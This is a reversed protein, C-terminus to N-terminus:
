NIVKPFWASKTSDWEFVTGDNPDRYTYSTGDYEVSSGFVNKPKWQKSDEDWLFENQTTPDKYIYKGDVCACYLPNGLEPKSGTGASTGTGTSSSSGDNNNSSPLPGTPTAVKTPDKKEEGDDEYM